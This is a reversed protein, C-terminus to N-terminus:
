IPTKSFLIQNFKCNPDIVLLTKFFKIRYNQRFIFYRVISNGRMLYIFKGAYSSKGASSYVCCDHHFNQQTGDMSDQGVDQIRGGDQSIGGGSM